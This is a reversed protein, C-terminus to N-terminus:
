EFDDEIGYRLRVRDLRALLPKSFLLMTVLTSVAQSLNVSFGATYTALVGAASLRSLMLFVSATDLLPGVVFLVCLFGFVALLLPKRPLRNRSFLFGALMGGAGYAFMQWPTNVSQGYFFNSAFASVAGIMFGSEAGLAVGSIMIVAFMPKFHPIPIVVRSAVALATLVALIVLERAQPRRREFSLLFPVTLEVIVLTSTIYYGRGPLRLGFYLTLPIVVFFDLLMAIRSSKRKM